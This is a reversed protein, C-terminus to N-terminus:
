GSLIVGGGSSGGGGSGGSGGGGGSGGSGGGGSGGSPSPQPSPTPTPAVVKPHRMPPLATGSPPATVVPASAPALNFPVVTPASAASPATAKGILLALGFMALLAVLLGVVTPRTLTLPM